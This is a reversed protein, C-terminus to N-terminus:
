EEDCECEGTYELAVGMNVGIYPGCNDEAPTICYYAYSWDVCSENNACPKPCCTHSIVKNIPVTSLCCIHSHTTSCFGSIPRIPLSISFNVEGVAIIEYGAVIECQKPHECECAPLTVKQIIPNKICSLGALNFCMEPICDTLIFGRPAQMHCCTTIIKKCESDARHVDDEDMPLGSKDFYYTKGYQFNNENINDKDDSAKIDIWSQFNNKNTNDKHDNTTIDIWSQFNDENTNDKHDNTTIDIWSQFNNEDTKNKDDNITIDIWSQFNNENTKDKDDIRIIEIGEKDLKNEISFSQAHIDNSPVECEDIPLSVKDFNFINGYQINNGDTNNKAANTMIVKGEKDLKNKKRLLNQKYIENNMAISLIYYLASAFPVNRRQILFYDAVLCLILSETDLRVKQMNYFNDKKINKNDM